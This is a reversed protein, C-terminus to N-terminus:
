NLIKRGHGVFQFFSFDAVRLSIWWDSGVRVSEIGSLTLTSIPICVCVNVMKADLSVAIM